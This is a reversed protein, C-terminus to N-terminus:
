SGKLMLLSLQERLLPSTLKTCLKLFAPTGKSGMGLLPECFGIGESWSVIKRRPLGTGATRYCRNKGACGSYAQCCQHTKETNWNQRDKQRELQTEGPLFWLVFCQFSGQGRHGECIQERFEGRGIDNRGQLSGSFLVQEPGTIYLVVPLREAIRSHVSAFDGVSCCLKM